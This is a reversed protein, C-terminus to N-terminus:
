NGPAMIETAVEQGSKLACEVTGVECDDSLAEGAFFLTHDVSHRLAKRAAATDLTVYSYAGLSFPDTNWNVMRYAALKEKLEAESMKFIYALSSIAERLIIEEGTSNYKESNPGALWGTLLPNKEPLQTWWTPIAAESLIFGADQLNVGIRKEVAADRWFPESFQLLIKIVGGYGMLQLAKMKDPIAPFFSISAPSSPPAQLIGLPVTIVAKDGEFNEGIKTIISVHDKKWHIEKVVSSLQIRCGFSTCEDALFNM